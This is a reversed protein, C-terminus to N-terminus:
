EKIHYYYLRTLDENKWGYRERLENGIEYCNNDHDDWKWSSKSYTNRIIWETVLLSSLQDKDLNSYKM